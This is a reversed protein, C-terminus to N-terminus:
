VVSMYLYSGVKMLNKIMDRDPGSNNEGVSAEILDTKWKQRQLMCQLCAM